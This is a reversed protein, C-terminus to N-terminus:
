CRITRIDGSLSGREADFSERVRRGDVGSVTPFRM